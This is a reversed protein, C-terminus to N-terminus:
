LVSCPRCLVSQQAETKCLTQVACKAWKTPRHRRVRRNLLSTILRPRGTLCSRTLRLSRSNAVLSFGKPCPIPPLYLPLVLVLVPWDCTGYVLCECLPCCNQARDVHQLAELTYLSQMASKACADQQQAETSCVTHLGCKTAGGKAWSLFWMECIKNAALCSVGWLLPRRAKALHDALCSRTLRLSRTNAVFSSAKPCSHSLSLSRAGFCSPWVCTGCVLCECFPCGNQARHASCM